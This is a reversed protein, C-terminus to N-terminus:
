EVFPLWRRADRDSTRLAPILSIVRDVLAYAVITLALV